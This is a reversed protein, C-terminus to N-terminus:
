KLCDGYVVMHEMAVNYFQTIHAYEVAGSAIKKAYIKDTLCKDIAEFMHEDDTKCCTLGDPFESLRVDQQNMIIPRNSCLVRKGSASASYLGSVWHYNLMVVSSLGLWLNVEDEPVFKGLLTVYPVLNLKIIERITEKVHIRWAEPATPHLGGAFVLQINPYKKILKPLTQVLQLMGKDAGYFGTQVIYIKDKPKGLKDAATDFDIADYIPAGLPIVKVKLDPAWKLLENRVLDNGVIIYSNLSNYWDTVKQVEVSSFNPFPIINHFTLCTKIGNLHLNNLFSLFPSNTPDYSEYYMSSEFQIHVIDPKYEIIKSLMEDYSQGRIYCRDYLLNINPDLPPIEDTTKEAFIKLECMKSLENSLEESYKGVGCKVRHTGVMAVKM